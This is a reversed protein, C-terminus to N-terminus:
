RGGRVDFSSGDYRSDPSSGNRRKQERPKLEDELDMLGSLGLVESDRYGSRAYQHDFGSMQTELQQMVSDRDDAPKTVPAKPKPLEVLNLQERFEAPSPMRHIGNKLFVFRVGATKLIRNKVKVRQAKAEANSLHYQEIDFAFIPRGDPACVVFDVRHERLREKAAKKSAARRVSLMQVLSINPLVVQGPFTDQLYDLMAVQETSLIREPAFRDDRGDDQSRMFRLYLWVCLVLVVAAIVSGIVMLDM